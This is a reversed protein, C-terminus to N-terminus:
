CATVGTLETAARAVRAARGSAAGFGFGFGFGFGLAVVVGRRVCGAIALAGCSAYRSPSGNPASAGAPSAAELV